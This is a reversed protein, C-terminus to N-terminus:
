IDLNPNNDISSPLPTRDVSELNELSTEDVSDRPAKIILVNNPHWSCTMKDPDVDPPIEYKRTFERSIFGHEDSREEHKGHVSVMDGDHQVQVEHPQFQRVDLRVRFNHSHQYQSPLSGSIPQSMQFEQGHDTSSTPFNESLARRRGTTSSIDQHYDSQDLEQGYPTNNDWSIGAM